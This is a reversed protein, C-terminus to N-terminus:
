FRDPNAFEVTLRVRARVEIPQPEVPTAPSAEAALAATRFPVPPPVDVNPEETATLVRSVKLGLAAALVDAEKRARGAARSLADSYVSHEDALTFEVRQIRDAGSKVAVDVIRGVSDLMTTNARIVNTAVYGAVKPEGGERPYRYEPQVSYNATAVTGSGGLLTKLAAMVGATERANESAAARADEGRTTVAIDIAATDPAATVTAEGWVLLTYPPPAAVQGAAPAASVGFALIVVLLRM